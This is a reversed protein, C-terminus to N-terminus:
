RHTIGRVIGGIRVWLSVSTGPLVVSDLGARDARGFGTSTDITFM